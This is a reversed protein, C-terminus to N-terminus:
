ILRTRAKGLPTSASCATSNPPLMEGHLERAEHQLRLGYAIGSCIVWMLPHIQISFPHKWPPLELTHLSYPTRVGSSCATYGEWRSYRMEGTHKLHLLFRWALYGAPLPHSTQNEEQAPEVLCSEMQRLSFENRNISTYTQHSPLVRTLSRSGKCWTYCLNPLKALRVKCWAWCVLPNQSSPNLM